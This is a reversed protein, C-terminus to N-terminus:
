ISKKMRTPPAQGAIAAGRRSGSPPTWMSCSGSGTTTPQPPMTSAWREQSLEQRIAEVGAREEAGFVILLAFRQKEPVLTCFSHSKKYRLSWGHKKGGFLWEPTFVNPYTQEILRTVQMWFSYADSGIWAEVQELTPPEGPETMRSNVEDM